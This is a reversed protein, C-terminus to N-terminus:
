VAEVELGFRERAAQVIAEVARGVIVEGKHASAESPKGLVGSGTVERFDEYREIGGPWPDDEPVFDEGPGSVLHPAVHMVVSTCLEGAHGAAWRGTTLVDEGFRVAFRWWDIQMCRVGEDVLALGIQDILRTNGDHTNLFLLDTFGWRILSRCVGEYYARFADPSVTLTGPHSMLDGSYGIAILPTCVAGLRGAVMRAIAEAVIGDSGLPLHPGYVEVAGSPIVAVPNRRSREEIRRWDLASYDTDANWRPEVLNTTTGM